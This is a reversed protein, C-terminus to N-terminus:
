QHKEFPKLHKTAQANNSVTCVTICCKIPLFTCTVFIGYLIGAGCWAAQLTMQAMLASIKSVFSESAYHKGMCVNCKITHDACQYAM